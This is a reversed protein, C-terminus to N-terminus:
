FPVVFDVPENDENMMENFRDKSWIEARQGVGIIVIDRVIGAKEIFRAPLVVRSQSDMECNESNLFITRQLKTRDVGDNVFLLENTIEEWQEERYIRLFQEGPKAFVVFEKSGIMDRIKPPMVIRKKADLTRDYYGNFQMYAAEKVIIEEM